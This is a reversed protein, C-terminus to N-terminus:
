SGDSDAKYNLICTVVKKNQIHRNLFPSSWYVFFTQPGYKRFLNASQVHAIKNLPGPFM